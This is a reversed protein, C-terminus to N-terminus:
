APWGRGPLTTACSGAFIKAVANRPLEDAFLYDRPRKYNALPSARCFEDLEDATVGCATTVCGVVIEGWRPDPVGVVAVERVAPHRALVAEVEEPHINEAGSNIM